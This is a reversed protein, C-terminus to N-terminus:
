NKATPKTEPERAPTKAKQAEDLKQLKAQSYREAALRTLEPDEDQNVFKMSAAMLPHVEALRDHMAKVLKRYGPHGQPTTRLEHLHFAQRANYTIKWRMKHGFLVAYQAELLYGKAQLASFLELSLDFCKNYQEVLGAEEVLEPAGYGFRPSLPQWELDDVMRHRQLDRFIGYDCMLDWSYHATELARGPRHRRNFREGMYAKFVKVRKKYPWSQVQKTLEKLSLDSHEYLMDPLLDLENHPWYSTLRVPTQDNSHVPPLYCNALDKVRQYTITRYGQTAGGREPLDARKLFSSLVKRSEKLLQQGTDQAEPLEDGLLHIILSELAQGSAFIGVSSQTAVPLVGRAADCAQARTAARWAGDREEIPVKSKAGVNDTIKHVMESYLDFIKDMDRTYRQALEPELYSPQFYRYQGDADRQDYYIYRTSQELYAALRGWELKKTLLNSAREVVVHLGALQQVSDDGYATIIRELLEEDKADAGAFEDLLTIRMDDGRRSLRAMAAAATLPSLKNTFAYVNGEISTISDKLFSRGAETISFSGNTNKKVLPGSVKVESAEKAPLLPKVVQWIKDHIENISLLEGDATCDIARFDKPFLETLRDYTEVAKTLHDIDAEHEDLERNENKAREKILKHSLKAPVRLLITLTPRPLGLIEFELSDEWVFFGRQQEEHDFKAGQHVMNAGVYRNSLVIKGAKLAQRIDPAAEYRDLAYFLSAAYPNIESAPGYEGKLYKSVFHSSPQEYRPFDFSEVEYGEQKLRETLREFQTKKGSGDAGEIVFMLGESM